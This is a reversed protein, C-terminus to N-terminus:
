ECRRTMCAGAFFRLINASNTGVLVEQADYRVALCSLEEATQFRERVQREPRLLFASLVLSM